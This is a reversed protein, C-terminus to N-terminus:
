TTNIIWLKRTRAKPCLEGEKLNSEARGDILIATSQRYYFSISRDILSLLPQVIINYCLPKLSSLPKFSNPEDHASVTCTVQIYIRLQSIAKAVIHTLSYRRQKRLICFLPKQSYFPFINQASAEIQM